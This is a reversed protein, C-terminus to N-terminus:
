WFCISLAAQSLVYVSLSVQPDREFDIPTVDGDQRGYLTRIDAIASLPLGMGIMVQCAPINVGALWETVPHEVQLRPNLELFYYQQEELM